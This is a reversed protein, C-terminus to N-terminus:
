MLDFLQADHHKESELLYNLSLLVWSLFLTNKGTNAIHYCLSHKATNKTTICNIQVCKDIWSWQLHTDKDAGAVSTILVFNFCEQYIGIEDDTSVVM